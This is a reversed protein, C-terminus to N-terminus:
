LIEVVSVDIGTLDGTLYKKRERYNVNEKEQRQL